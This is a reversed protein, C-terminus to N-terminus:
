LMVKTIISPPITIPDFSPSFVEPRNFKAITTGLQNKRTIESGIISPNHHLQNELQINFTYSDPLFQLLHFFLLPNISQQLELSTYFAFSATLRPNCELLFVQGQSVLFDLGFFGRYNKKDLIKSFKNTIDNVQTEITAPVFSPWQRGVTAFKNTTLPSIGTYQLASSSSILGNQTLCCNNLLSFGSLFPSYKVLTNQGIINKLNSYSSGSFTSKGAWGFHTQIVLNKGFNQTAQSFSELNFPAILYPIVPINSASCITPFKLKDEFLRNLKATNAALIWNNKQCILEIKASPKFPIIVPTFNNKQSINQIFNLTKPHQLLRGSNKADLKIGLLDPNIQYFNSLQPLSLDLFEDVNLYFYNYPLQNLFDLLNM